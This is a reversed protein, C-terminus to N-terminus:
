KIRVANFTADRLTVTGEFISSRIVMEIASSITLPTIGSISVGVFGSDFPATNRNQAILVTPTNSRVWFDIIPRSIQGQLDFYGSASILYRNVTMDDLLKSYVIQTVNSGATLQIDNPGDTVNESLNSVIVWQVGNYVTLENPTTLWATDGEVPVPVSTDRAAADTYRMIARDRIQNGWATQITGGPTVDPIEPM